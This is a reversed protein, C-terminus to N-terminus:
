AVPGVRDYRILPVEQYWSGGTGGPELGAAAFQRALYHITKGDGVQAPGRGLFADSSLVRVHEKIRAASIQAAAPASLGVLCLAAAATMRARSM